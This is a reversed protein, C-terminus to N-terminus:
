ASLNLILGGVFRPDLENRQLACLGEEWLDLCYAAFEGAGPKLSEAWALTERRLEQNVRGDQTVREWLIELDRRGIADPVLDRGLLQNALATLFLDSLGVDEPNEPVCGTLDWTQPDPLDFGLRGDFLCLQTEIRDLWQACLRVEDLEAFPREGARDASLTGEYLQPRRRCLAELLARFPGDLYFAHPTARLLEARKKLDLTLSVGLRFLYEFYSNDFCRIAQDLDNGALSELAINLYRYVQQMSQRVQELDGVDIREAIMVKNLLYTLEWCADPELGRSLIEGLLNGPPEALFFGPADAGEEAARFPIKARSEVAFSTPALYAFVSLAEFPDPFGRDQLRLSRANYAADELSPGVENRVTEMLLLYFDRDRRYLIDLFYGVIKASESDAFDMEYIRDSRGDALADEDVLSEIGSTITIFKQMMLTLLEFDMERATEMVKGEGAELLIVLWELTPQPALEEGRWLDLDFFATMQETTTMALLEVCDEIGLEKILLYVEQSPLRQVLEHCDHANLLLQYKQKGAANRVLRLREEVTLANFDSSSLAPQHRMLPLARSVNGEPQERSTM